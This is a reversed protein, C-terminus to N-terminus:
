RNVRDRPGPDAGVSPLIEMVDGEGLGTIEGLRKAMQEQLSRRADNRDRIAERVKRMEDSTLKRQIKTEIQSIAKNDEGGFKVAMALVKKIEDVSLGTLDALTQQFSTQSSKLAEVQNKVAETVQNRQEFSLPKGLKTELKALIKASPNDPQPRPQAVAVSAVVALVSLTVLSTRM